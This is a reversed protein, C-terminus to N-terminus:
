GLNPDTTIKYQEVVTKYILEHGLRNPHIGDECLLDKYNHNGLFVSRIDILPVALKAALLVVKLNYMEQWRYISDIGGLWKLINAKDLKKSIWNFYRTSDLPPLSLMVPRGGNNRIEEIVQTYVKEFNEPSTKPVHESDPNEAVENWALDCDNGGFELFINKYSSLESAHRKIVSLGKSITCGMMSYNNVNIKNEGIIDKLDIKTVGYRNSDAQLVVGKGISDGFVCLEMSDQSEKKM